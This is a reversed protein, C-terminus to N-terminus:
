KDSSKTGFTATSIAKKAKGAQPQQMTTSFVTGDGTLPPPMMPVNEPLSQQPKAMSGPPTNILGDQKPSMGITQLVKESPKWKRRSLRRGSPSVPSETNSAAVASGGNGWSFALHALSADSKATPPTGKSSSRQNSASAVQTPDPKPSQFPLKSSTPPVKKVGASKSAPNKVPKKKKDSQQKHITAAAGNSQTSTATASQVTHPTKGPSKSQASSQGIPLGASHRRRIEKFASLDYYPFKTIPDKYKAPKGTIVCKNPDNPTSSSPLASQTQEESMTGNTAVSPISGAVSQLAEVQQPQQQPRRTLIEPVSDMEPFTLTILCGRRSHFKQVVKGRQRDRLANANADRENQDQVRKRALLWRQNDPETDNVAEILLEEQTYRKRKAAAHKGSTHQNAGKRKNTTLTKKEATSRSERLQRAGHTSRSERTSTLASKPVVPDGSKRKSKTTSPPKKAPSPPSVEMPTPQPSAPPPPPKLIGIAMPPISQPTSSSLPAAAEAATTSATAQEHIQRQMALSDTMQPPFNLVIGANFGEGMIRRGRKGRPGATAKKDVYAGGKRQQKAARESKQLELEAAEGAAAEEGENDSESDDFDSDFEDKALNSDEDSERFSDNGSDDENWTDHGWFADDEEQAKGVLSNMRRGATKRRERGTSVM